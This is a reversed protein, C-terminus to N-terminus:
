QEDLKTQLGVDLTEKNPTSVYKMNKLEQLISIKEISFSNHVVLGMRYWSAMVLRDEHAMRPRVVEGEKDSKDEMKRKLKLLYNKLKIVERDRSKLESRLKDIMLEKEFVEINSAGPSISRDVEPDEPQDSTSVKVKQRLQLNDSELRALKEKMEPTFVETLSDLRDGPLSLELSLLNPDEPTSTLTFLLSDREETMKRLNKQLSSNSEESAALGKEAEQSSAKYKNIEAQMLQLQEELEKM